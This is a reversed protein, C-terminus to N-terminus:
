GAQGDVAVLEARQHRRHGLQEAVELRPHQREVQATAGVLLDGLLEARVGLADVVGELADLALDALEQALALAGRQPDDGAGLETPRWRGRRCRGSRPTA